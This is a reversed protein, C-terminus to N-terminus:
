DVEVPLPAETLERLARALHVYGKAPIMAGLYLIRMSTREARGQIRMEVEEDEFRIEKELANPVIFIKKEPVLGLTARALTPSLFCFADVREVFWELSWSRHAFALLQPIDATHVHTVVRGVHRRAVALSLLDRLHGSRSTSIVLYLIDPKRDKVRKWLKWVDRLRFNVATM